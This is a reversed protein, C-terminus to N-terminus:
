ENSASYLRLLGGILVFGMGGGSVMGLKYNLTINDLFEQEHGTVYLTSLMVTLFGVLILVLGFGKIFKIEKM